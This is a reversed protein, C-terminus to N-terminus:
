LKCKINNELYEDISLNPDLILLQNYNDYITEVSPLKELQKQNLTKVFEEYKSIFEEDININNFKSLVLKGQSLNLHVDRKGNRLEGLTVSDVKYEYVRSLTNDFYDKVLIVDGKKPLESFNYNTTKVTLKGNKDPVSKKATILQKFPDLKGRWEFKEEFLEPRFSYTKNNLTKYIKQYYHIMEGTPENNSNLVPRSMVLVYVKNNRALIEPAVKSSPMKLRYHYYVKKDNIVEYGMHNPYKSGEIKENGETYEYEKFPNNGSAFNGLLQLIFHEKINELYKVKEESSFKYIFLEKINEDIYKNIKEYNDSSILKAYSLAGFKLGQTLISYKIFDEKIDDPLSNFANQHDIIDEPKFQTAKLYSLIRTKKSRDYKVSYGAVFLNNKYKEDRKLREAKDLFNQIWAEVGFLYPDNEPYKADFVSQDFGSIFYKIMEDRIASLNDQEFYKIKIGTLKQVEKSFEIFEPTHKIITKEILSVFRKLNLIAEKINPINFLYSNSFPKDIEEEELVIAEDKTEVTKTITKPKVDEETIDYEKEFSKLVESAKEYTNPFNRLISLQVARNSIARGITDLKYFTSLVKMQEILGFLDLESIDKGANKELLEETIEIDDAIKELSSLTISETNEPLHIRMKSLKELTKQIDNNNEKLLEEIKQTILKRLFSKINPYDNKFNKYESAYKLIPQLTLRVVENVSMGVSIGGMFGIGTVNSINLIPLIQEKVNDIAANIFLDIVQRTTVKYNIPNGNSDFGIIIENKYPERRLERYTKGFAKIHLKPNLEVNENNIVADFSYAFGKFFNAFIGTLKVGAFNDSHMLHEDIPLGIVRDVYLEKHDEKVAGYKSEGGTIRYVLDFASEEVGKRIDESKSVRKTLTVLDIPTLMDELNDPHSFLEFMGKIVMNKYGKILINRTTRIKNRLENSPNKEYEELLELYYPKIINVHEETIIESKDIIIDDNIKFPTRKNTSMRIISLSDVDFDSGHLAVIERPVIVVNTQNKTPYFGVVRLPIASHIETSPLRFGFMSLTGKDILLDGQKIHRRIVPIDPMIIEAYYNGQEDKVLRPERDLKINRSGFASQLVFKSGPFKINSINRTFISALNNVVKEVIFPFNLSIKPNRIYDLFTINDQTERAADSLEKKIIQEINKESLNNLSLKEKLNDYGLKQIESYAERIKEARERNKGNSNLMYLLQSPTAVGEESDIKGGPNLQIRYYRNSLTIVNEDSFDKKNFILRGNEDVEVKIPNSPNGVKVASNFIVEDITKSNKEIIRNYSKLANYYNKRYEADKKLRQKDVNMVIDFLENFDDLPSKGDSQRKVDSIGVSEMARRLERLEPFEMCLEDTLEVASYKVYIPAGNERIEYHVPKLISKLNLGRGFGKVINKKRKPLIYGQADTIKPNIDRIKKLAQALPSNGYRKDINGSTDIIDDLVIIRYKEKLGYREDIIGKQGIANPGAERKIVDYSDKFYAIDGLTLQNLLNSNVYFNMYFLEMVDIVDEKKVNYQQTKKGDKTIKTKVNAEAFDKRISPKQEDIFGFEKLKSHIKPLESDFVFERKILKDTLLEADKRLAEYIEEVREMIVKNSRLQEIAEDRRYDVIDPNSLIKIIPDNIDLGMQELTLRDKKIPKGKSDRGYFLYSKSVKEENFGKIKPNATRFAEQLVMLILTDKIEKHELIRMMAGSITPKNSPTIGQQFYYFGTKESGFNKALGTFALNLNRTFWDLGTERKYVVSFDNLNNRLGDHDAYERIREKETLLPNLHYFKAESNNKMYDPKIIHSFVGLLSQVIEIFYNSNMLTWRPKGDAGHYRTSQEEFEQPFIIDLIVSTNNNENTHMFYLIAEELSVDNLSIEKAEEYSYKSNIYESKIINNGLSFHELMFKLSDLFDYANVIKLNFLNPTIYKEPIVAKVVKSFKEKFESSNFKIADKKNSTLENLIQILDNLKNEKKLNTIILALDTRFNELTSLREVNKNIQFYRFTRSGDVHYEMVGTMPFKERLSNLSSFIEALTNSALQASYAANIKKYIVSDTLLEADKTKNKRDIEKIKLAVMKYFEPTTAPRQYTVKKGNVIKEKTLKAKVTTVRPTYYINGNNDQKPVYYKIYARDPYKKEISSYDFELEIKYKNETENFNIVRKEVARMLEILRDKIARVDESMSEGYISNFSSIVQSIKENITKGNINILAQGLIKYPSAKVPLGTKPNTITALFDKVNETVRQEADFRDGEEVIDSLKFTGDFDAYDDTEDPINDEDIDDTISSIMNQNSLKEEAELAEDIGTEAMSILEKINKNMFTPYIIKLIEVFNDIDLLKEAARLTIDRYDRVRELKKREEESLNQNKLQENVENLAQKFVTVTTQLKKRMLVFAEIRKYPIHKLVGNPQLIEKDQKRAYNTTLISLYEVVIEYARKFTFGDGWNKALESLPKGTKLTFDVVDKSLFEGKEIKSFIDEIIDKNDKLFGLLKLIKDFIQKIFNGSAINKEKYIQYERALYEEIEDETKGYLGYKKIAYEYLKKREQPTLYRNFVEHFIEHRAINLYYTKDPNELIYITGNLWYGWNKGKSVLFMETESVFKINEQSIKVKSQIEKIITEKDVKPGLNTFEDKSLAKGDPDIAIDSDLDNLLDEEDTINETETVESSKIEEVDETEKELVEKEGALAELIKDDKSNDKPTSEPKIKINSNRIQISVKTNEISELTTDFYEYANHIDIEKKTLPDVAKNKIQQIPIRLGFGKKVTSNGEEDFSFLTELDNLSISQNTSEIINEIVIQRFLEAKEGYKNDKNYLISNLFRFNVKNEEIADKYKENDEPKSSQLIENGFLKFYIKSLEKEYSKAFILTSRPNNFNVTNREDSQLLSKGSSVTLIKNKRIFSKKISLSINDVKSNSKSILNFAKQAPGPKHKGIVVLDNINVKIEQGKYNLVAYSDEIRLVVLSTKKVTKNGKKDEVIKEFKTITESNPLNENITISHGNRIQVKSGVTVPKKEYCLDYIDKALQKLQEKQEQNLNNLKDLESYDNFAIKKIITNTQINDELGSLILFQKKLEIFKLVPSILDFHKRNNINLKKPLLRIYLEKNKLKLVLYSIGTKLKFFEQSGEKNKYKKTFVIFFAKQFNIKKVEKIWKLINSTLPKADKMSGYQIHIRNVNSVTKEGSVLDNEKLIEKILNLDDDNTADEIVEITIDGLNPLKDYDKNLGLRSVEKNSLVGISRFGKETKAIVHILYDGDIKNKVKVIYVKDGRKALGPEFKSSLKENTPHDLQYEIVDPTPLIDVIEPELPEDPDQEIDDNDTESNDAIPEKEIDNNDEFEDDLEDEEIENESPFEEDNENTVEREEKNIKKDEDNYKEKTFEDEYLIEAKEKVIWKDGVLEAIGPSITVITKAKPNYANQAECAPDINRDPYQIALKISSETQDIEFEALNDSIKTFRYISAGVKYKTSASSNNFSGDSNPTSLYFIEKEEKTNKTETKEKEEKKEEQKNKQKEEQKKAEEKLHEKAIELDKKSRELLEDFKNNTEEETVGSIEQNDSFNNTTNFGTIILFETARSTSTYLATNYEKQVAFENPSNEIDVFVQDITAGQIEVFDYVFVNTINNDRLLDEYEQKRNKNTIIVRTKGDQTNQSKLFNVLEEKFKNKNKIGFVGKPNPQETLKNDKINSSVIIEKQTHDLTNNIFRDQFDLLSSVNTRFRTTLPSIVTINELKSINRLVEDNIRSDINFNDILLDHKKYSEIFPKIIARLLLAALPHKEAVNQNPDGAVIIKINKGKTLRAIKDLENKNIGGVEDIVIFDYKEFFKDGETEIDTILNELTPNINKGFSKNITKSVLTNKGTAYVRESKIGLLNILTKLVVTTKGTGAYGKLYAVNAYEENKDKRFTFYILEKISNLQEQSYVIKKGKTKSQKELEKVLNELVSVIKVNSESLEVINSYVLINKYHKIIELLDKKTLTADKRVSEDLNEVQKEFESLNKTQLFNYLPSSKDSDLGKIIGTFKGDAEREYELDSFASIIVDLRTPNKKFFELADKQKDDLKKGLLLNDIAEWNKEINEKLGNPGNILDDKSQIENIKKAFLSKIIDVWIPSFNDNKAKEYLEDFEKEGIVQKYINSVETKNKTKIDIGITLYNEANKQEALLKLRKERDARNEKAKNLIDNLINLQNEISDIIENKTQETIDNRKNFINKLSELEKIQQEVREVQEFYDDIESADQIAKTENFFEKTVVKVKDDYSEESETESVFNELDNLLKDLLPQETEIKKGYKNKLFESFKSLIDILETEFQENSINEDHLVSTDIGSEQGYKNELELILQAIEELKESPIDINTEIEQTLPDFVENVSTEILNDIQNIKNNIEELKQKKNNTRERLLNKETDSIEVNETKIISFINEPSDNLIEEDTEKVENLDKIINAKTVFKDTYRDLKNEELEEIRQKEYELYSDPNESIKPRKKYKNNNIVKDRKKNLYAEANLNSAENIDKIFNRRTKELKSIDIVKEIINDVDTPNNIIYDILKGFYSKFKDQLLEEELSLPKNKNNKKSFKNEFAKKVESLKKDTEVINENTKELPTIIHPLNEKLTQFFNKLAKNFEDNNNKIDDKSIFAGTKESIEKLLTEKRQDANKAAAYSYKLADRLEQDKIYGFRTEVDESIEEIDNVLQRIRNFTERFNEKGFTEKFEEENALSKEFEDIEQKLLDGRGANIRSLIYDFAQDFKADEYAKRDGKLLAEDMLNQSSNHAVNAKVLDYLGTKVSHKNLNKLQVARVADEKKNQPIKFAGGLAGLMAGLLMSEQGEKSGLTEELGKNFSFLFKQSELDAKRNYRREFYNNLTRESLFQGGEQGTESAINEAFGGLRKLRLTSLDSVYKGSNDKLVNNLAKKEGKYSNKFLKGFQIFNSGGVLVLNVGFNVNGASEAANEIEEDTLTNEGRMRQNLLTEKVSKYVNRAEIASEGIASVTSAFARDFLVAKRIASAEKGIIEGAKAAKLAKSYNMGLKGLVSGAKTVNAGLGLGGTVLGSGIAGLMFGLGNGFKDAWFTMQTLEQGLSM